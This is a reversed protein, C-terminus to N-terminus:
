RNPAAGSRRHPNSLTGAKREDRFREVDYADRLEQLNQPLTWEVDTVIIGHLPSRMTTKISIDKLARSKGVNNPGILITFNGLELQLRNNLVLRTLKYRYM